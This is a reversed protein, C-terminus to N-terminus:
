TARLRRHAFGGVLLILGVLAAFGPAPLVTVGDTPDTEALFELYNAAGDGDFDGDPLVDALTEVGDAPVHDIIAQEFNDGLGDGDADVTENPNFPFADSADLVGDGDSDLVSANWASLATVLPNDIHGSRDAADAADLGPADFYLTKTLEWVYFPSVAPDTNPIGSNRWLGSSGYAFADGTCQTVPPTSDDLYYSTVGPSPVDTLLRRIVVLSGQLGEVLEWALDGQAVTDPVGDILVGAPAIDSRYTMGLAGASYDHFDMVGSIAHVRLFIHVDERREYYVHQRQTRPGSNAGIYSRIARVPGSKNVIFAGEAASFTDESRGCSGPGFLNKNRDLIDAGTAAGAFIRLADDKWRDSFHREYYATTITSDEPNPGTVLRYTTKYDGSLLNFQYDVYAAGAGPDLPAARRFLYVYGPAGGLPDTIAVQIGSNAVVGPPESFVPCVSGADKAMLAIEDNADLAIDSDPGTFTGADTYDLRAFSPMGVISANYVDVFDITDREDVQVPVQQWVGIYRFAVLDGPVMGLFSPADAGTLVVPHAPRDLAGASSSVAAAFVALWFLHRM